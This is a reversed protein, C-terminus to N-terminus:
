ASKAGSTQTLRKASFAARRNGRQWPLAPSDQQATKIASMIWRKHTKPKMSKSEQKRRNEPM